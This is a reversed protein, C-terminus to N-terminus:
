SQLNVSIVMKVISLEEVKFCPIEAASVEFCSQAVESESKV